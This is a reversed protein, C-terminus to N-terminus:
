KIAGLMTYMPQLMSIAFFGIAGGVLLMLVPEIVSSLNKSLSSVEEEYFDALKGLVESTEGTEEGVEAMQIVLAPYLNSYPKLAVSLKQGKRVKETADDLAGKFYVNGLVGSTIELARVVPVGSNILSSLNRATYASNTKQVIPSILPIKLSLNDFFRKGKKTKLLYRFLFVALVLILILLYWRQSVFNGLGIVFQTTLPLDINLDAFTEALKPIVMALMLIGIGIMASVIVSPYMMASKLKSKLENEREMQETLNKLVTELTGSEEGAKILSVFFESFVDPYKKLCSSLNQGKNVEDVIELIIKKFKENKSVEALTNLARPLSIGASIMVRLNRTFFLKEGLSVGELFSISIKKNRSKTKDEEASILMFGDQKIIKALAHEDQAEAEGM